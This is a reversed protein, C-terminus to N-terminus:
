WSFLGREVLPDYVWGTHYGTTPRAVAVRAAAPQYYDYFWDDDLYGDDNFGYRTLTFAEWWAPLRSPAVFTEAVVTTPTASPSVDTPRQTVIPRPVADTVIPKPVADPVVQVATAPPRARHAEQAYVSNTENQARVSAPIVLLFLGSLLAFPRM